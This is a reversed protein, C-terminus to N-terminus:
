FHVQLLSGFMLILAVFVILGNV